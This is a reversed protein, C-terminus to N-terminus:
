ISAFTTNKFDNLSFHKRDRVRKLRFDVDSNFNGEAEFLEPSNKSNKILLMEGNELDRIQSLDRNWSLSKLKM